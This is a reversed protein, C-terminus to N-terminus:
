RRQTSDPLLAPVLLREVYEVLRDSHQARYAVYTPALSEDMLHVLIAEDLFCADRARAFLKWFDDLEAGLEALVALAGEVARRELVLPSPPAADDEPLTEAAFAAAYALWAQTPGDEDGDEVPIEIDTGGAKPAIRAKVGYVRLFARRRATCFERLRAWGAEYTPDSVVALVAHHVAADGNGLEWETGALFRHASRMWPAIELARRYHRGAEAYRELGHLADGCYVQLAPDDPCLDAARAYLELARAFNGAGFLQEAEARAADSEESCPISPEPFLIRGDLQALADRAVGAAVSDPRAGAVFALDARALATFRARQEAVVMGTLAMHFLARQMRADTNEPDLAVAADYARLAGDFDRAQVLAQARALLSARESGEGALAPLVLALGFATQLALRLPLKM